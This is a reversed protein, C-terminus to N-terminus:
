RYAAALAMKNANGLINAQPKRRWSRRLCRTHHGGALGRHVQGPLSQEHGVWLFKRCIADIETRVWPPLKDAMVAYISAAMLTSKVLVLRGSKGMLSGKWAPLKAAVKEVLPQLHAKPIAKTSLPLGLYRIPFPMVQCDLIHQIVDLEQDAGFIPTISCKALNTRL